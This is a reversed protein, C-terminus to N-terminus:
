SNMEKAQMIVDEMIDKTMGGPIYGLVYGGKDIIFTTPYATIYYQQMLTAGEDMLTPYTYGNEELFTTIGEIDQENGFEPFTVGLFIVESDNQASYEQYLEEIYPLEAKCPPCWTAWFNLFIIKGKYDSLSHTDGYQDVLEFDPAMVKETDAESEAVDDESSKAEADMDKYEGEVADTGTTDNNIGETIVDSSANEDSSVAVTSLYGTIGNMKGTFMLIGMLLMLAGGVKVSYKVVDRHKGFFELLSTTFIGVLLFPLVYGLTYVGILMFGVTSSTASSAMILVSSLTPGVCPSWAFSIVFGMLLATIPSMQMKEVKLPLKYEGNLMRSNGLFGLQYLGFLIVVIGGIRAFLLQNGSFFRGVASMGLALLFYAFSIGVVFFFTNVFVTRRDYEMMGDEKKRSTGGSLYGIYIPLLPLVCPSFFSILGQLFVTIVPISNGVSIDM